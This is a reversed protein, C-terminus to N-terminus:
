VVSKRDISLETTSAEVYHEVGAGGIWDLLPANSCKTSTQPFGGAM